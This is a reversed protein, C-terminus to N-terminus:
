SPKNKLYLASPGVNSQKGTLPKQSLAKMELETNDNRSVITGAHILIKICALYALNQGLLYVKGERPLFM